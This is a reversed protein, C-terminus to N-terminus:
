LLERAKATKSAKGPRAFLIESQQTDMQQLVIAGDRHLFLRIPPDEPSDLYCVEQDVDVWGQETCIRAQKLISIRRKSAGQEIHLAVWADRLWNAAEERNAFPPVKQLQHFVKAYFRAYSKM